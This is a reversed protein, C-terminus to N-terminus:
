IIIIALIIQQIKLSLFFFKFRDVSIQVQSPFFLVM